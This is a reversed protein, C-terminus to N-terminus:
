KMAEQLVSMNYKMLDLYTSRRKIESGGLPDLLLVKVNAERAIVKAARPNLQPEAFVARIRHKKILAIINRIQLPTPNRGPAAEIVGVSELGYSRAFYDWSAHFSVYKKIRFTEVTAKILGHLKDLEDLYMQGQQKYYKIHQKDVECLAAIIKNVMSKVIEPDLWIHPNAFSSKHDSVDTKDHHHETTQILSVGQSLVVTKLRKGSLNVFKQAWFEFGAGVIFFIRASSFRKVLSPKPEFTHPSAGAQLVCTVDVYDGGVQQIMDAIPFISAIVPLKEGLCTSASFQIILFLLACFSLRVFIIKRMRNNKISM